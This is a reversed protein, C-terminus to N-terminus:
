TMRTQSSNRLRALRVQNSQLWSEAAMEDLETKGSSTTNYDSNLIESNSINENLWTENVCVIDLNEGYVFDQFRQLNCIISNTTVDKHISKL